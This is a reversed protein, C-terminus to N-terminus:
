QNKLKEHTKRAWRAQAKFNELGLEFSARACFSIQKIVVKNQEKLVKLYAETQQWVEQLFRLTKEKGLLECMFSLRLPISGFRWIIDEQTIPQSLYEKLVSLGSETLSYVRRPRLTEKKEIEGRILGAAELRRLAPYIAGPSASFHKM